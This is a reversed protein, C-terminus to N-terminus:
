RLICCLHWCVPLVDSYPLATQSTGHQSTAASHPLQGDRRHKPISWVALQPPPPSSMPSSQVTPPSASPSSSSCRPLQKTAGRRKAISRSGKTERPIWFTHLIRCDRLPFFLFFSLFFSLFFFSSFLSCPLLILDFSLLLSDGSM